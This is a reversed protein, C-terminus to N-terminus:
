EHPLVRSFTPVAIPSPPSTITRRATDALDHRGWERSLKFLQNRILCPHLIPKRGALGADSLIPEHFRRDFTALGFDDRSLAGAM